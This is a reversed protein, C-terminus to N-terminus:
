SQYDNENQSYDLVDSLSEKRKQERWVPFEVFEAVRAQQEPTLNRFKTLFEKELNQYIENMFKVEYVEASVGVGLVGNAADRM